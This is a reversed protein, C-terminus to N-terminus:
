CKEFLKELSRVNQNRVINKQNPECNGKGNKNGSSFTCTCTDENSYTATANGDRACSDLANEDGDYTISYGTSEAEDSM